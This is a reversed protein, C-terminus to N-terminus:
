RKVKSIVFDVIERAIDVKTTSQLGKFGPQSNLEHVFYGENSIMIDVGAIYCGLIKCARVALNKVDKSAKYSLPEAGQSINTKWGRARRIMSAVVKDNVVFCRIDSNGHSVFKQAYLVHHMYALTNFVRRAVEYDNIRTIGLGRSGFLPKLVVDGGLIKFGELALRPNETVITKPVQIGKENLLCLTYYKDVCREIVKPSNVVFVGSQEIRNLTDLRFIIEDLSGRGIPRVIIADLKSALGFGSIIVKDNSSDVFAIIKSFDFCVAECNRDEIAKKLKSSCWANPNRTLLGIKIVM